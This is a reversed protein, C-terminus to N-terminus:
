GASCVLAAPARSHATRHTSGVAEMLLACSRCSCFGAPSLPGQGSMNRVTSLNRDAFTHMVFAQAEPQLAALSALSRSDLDGRRLRGEAYLRDLVQAAAPALQAEATGPPGAPPPPGTAHGYPGGGRGGGPPGRAPPGVGVGAHSGTMRKVVGALFASVNRVDARQTRLASDLKVLSEVQESPPLSSLLTLVRDDLEDPSCHQQCTPPPPLSRHTIHAHCCASCLGLCCPCCASAATLPARAAGGAVQTQLRGRGEGQVQLSFIKDQVQPPLRSFRGAGAM